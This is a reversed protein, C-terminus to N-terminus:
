WALSPIVADLDEEALSEAQDLADGLGKMVGAEDFNGLDFVRYSAIKRAHRDNLRGGFGFEFDASGTGPEPIVGIVALRDMPDTPTARSYFMWELAGHRDGGGSILEYGHLLGPEHDLVYQVVEQVTDAWQSYLEDVNM